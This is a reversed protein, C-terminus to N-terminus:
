GALGELAARFAEVDAVSEISSFEAAIEALTPAPVEPIPLGTVPESHEGQDDVWRRIGAGDPPYNHVIEEVLGDPTFTQDIQQSPHTATTPKM